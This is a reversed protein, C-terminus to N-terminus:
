RKPKWEKVGVLVLRLQRHMRALVDPKARESSSAWSAVGDLMTSVILGAAMDLDDTDWNKTTPLRSLDITFDATVLRLETEIAKRVRENGGYRERYVFLFLEPAAQLHETFVQLRAAATDTRRADRLSARLAATAEDVLVLGLEDLSAFHRYFATPVLDATRAIERLSVGAFGREAALSLAGDLLARRTNEKREARSQHPRSSMTPLTCTHVPTNTLDSQHATSLQM